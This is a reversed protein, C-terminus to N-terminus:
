AESNLTFVPTVSLIDGSTLSRASAFKEAFLTKGSTAGEVYYGYITDSSSCTYTQASSYTSSAKDSVTTPTGWGSRTLTKTAYGTFTAVTFSTSTTDKDPTYNNRYLKLLYNEDVSLADKLMKRLLELEGENPVVMAM